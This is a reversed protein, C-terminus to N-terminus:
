SAIGEEVTLTTQPPPTAPGKRLCGRLGDQLAAADLGRGIFVLQSRRSEQAQWPRGPQGDLLMHVSHVHFRRAEGHFCLVGKSRMLQRGQALVLQNMWRNFTTADLAEDVGVCVSAVSADHEHDHASGDLLDPEIALVNPLSFRQVGLLERWSVQARQAHLVLATPNLQALARGTAALAPADVLDTKNIVVVDAFAVQERVIEDDVHLLLHLADVMTVVSELRVRELLEPEALFTQLVPAPDALGSTEVIVRDLPPGPLDLLATIAVALDRRVTCCVCGNNIEILPNEDAVILRGDIGVEGFENVVIGIRRDPEAALLQNVLTTKGAGLFGSVITIPVRPRSM